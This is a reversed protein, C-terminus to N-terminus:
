GEGFIYIYRTDELGKLVVPGEKMGQLIYRDYSRKPSMGVKGRDRGGLVSRLIHPITKRVMHFFLLFFRQDM